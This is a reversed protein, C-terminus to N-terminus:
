ILYPARRPRELLATAEPDDIFDERAADWRLTRQLELAINALNCASASRHASVVDSIPPVGDRVMRLFYYLHEFAIRSKSPQSEAHMRVADPPLPNAALEDFAAGEYKSRTVSLTGREGDIQMGSNDKGKVRPVSKIVLKMDGPYKLEVEFQRPENYGGEISPMKARGTIESPGSHEAGLAWQVIDVHHVGWNTIEGGGYERWDHWHQHREPCYDVLPAPGLWRDWNLGAPVSQGTFPGGELGQEICTVTVQKIRGLRGNRALEAATRFGYDCRQQLGCQLVTGAQEVAAVVRKGEGISHTLPKENYIAKGAAIAALTVGAHWHDPTSVIVAEVDDRELLKHYDDYIEPRPWETARERAVLKEAKPRDVDCVAVVQGYYPFFRTKRLINALYNGRVGCGVIGIKVSRRLTWYGGAGAVATLGVAGAGLLLKRRSFLPSQAAIDSQPPNDTM